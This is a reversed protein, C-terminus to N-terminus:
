NILRKRVFKTSIWILHLWKWELLHTQFRRKHFPPWKEEPPSSNLRDKDSKQEILINFQVNQM